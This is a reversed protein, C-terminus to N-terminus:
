VFIPFPAVIKLEICKSPGAGPPHSAVGFGVRTRPRSGVRDRSDKVGEFGDQNSADRAPGPPTGSATGPRRGKKFRRILREKDHTIEDDENDSPFPSGPRGTIKSDEMTTCGMSYMGEPVEGGDEAHPGTEKPLEPGNECILPHAGTVENEALLIWSDVKPDLQRAKGRRLQANFLDCKEGLRSV